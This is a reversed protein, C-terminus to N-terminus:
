PSEELDIMTYPTGQQTGTIFSWETQAADPAYWLSVECTEGPRVTIAYPMDGAAASQMRCPSASAEGASLRFNDAFFLYPEGMAEKAHSVAKDSELLIDVRWLEHDQVADTVTLYLTGSATLNTAAYREGIVHSLSAPDPQSISGSEQPASPMHANLWFLGAMTGGFVAICAAATVAHSIWDPRSPQVTATIYETIEDAPASSGKAKNTIRCLIREHEEESLVLHKEGLKAADQEDLDGLLRIIDKKRM